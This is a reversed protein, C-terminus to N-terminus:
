LLTSQQQIPATNVPLQLELRVLIPLIADSCPLNGVSRVISPRDLRCYHQNSCSQDQSWPHRRGLLPLITCLGATSVTHVGAALYFPHKSGLVADFPSIGVQKILLQLDCYRRLSYYGSQLSCYSDSCTCLFLFALIFGLPM